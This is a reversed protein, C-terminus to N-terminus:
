LSGLGQLGDAGGDILADIEVGMLELDSDTNAEAIADEALGRYYLKNRTDKTWEYCMTLIAMRLLRPYKQTLVNEEQSGSALPPPDGYFIFLWNYQEIAPAEFQIANASTGWFRPRGRVRAGNADYSFFSVVEDHTKHSPIFKNKGTFMFFYPARYTRSLGSLPINDQGANLTGTDTVRMERIRLGNSLIWLQADRLIAVAPVKSSNIWNKISDDQDRGAVLSTYTM